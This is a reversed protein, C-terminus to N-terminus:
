ETTSLNSLIGKALEIAVDKPMTVSSRMYVKEGGKLIQCRSIIYVGDGRLAFHVENSLGDPIECIAEYSHPTVKRTSM